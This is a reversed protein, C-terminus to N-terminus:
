KAAAPRFVFRSVVSGEMGGSKWTRGFDDSCYLAEELVSAYLRGSDPDVAIRWVHHSEPLGANRAVWTQGADESTVVGLAWSGIALRKPNTPDFAANYLTEGGQFAAIKEWAKGGNRSFWAGNSQTAALWLRPDHPSQQLDNVTTETPLVRRWREGGDNTLYIGSECGALVRGARTRDVSIVQTYKGRAPLGTERRQWTQARDSSVAVGDPLALYVHDPANPDVEVDPPETMDWSTTIRWSEGGDLSRWCGNNAGLYIVRRDRPDFAAGRVSTDNNGIHRFGGAEDRLFLGNMTVIASGIVYGKNVAACLYLDHRAAPSAGRVAAASMLALFVFSLKRM